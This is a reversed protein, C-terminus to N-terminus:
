SRIMQVADVLSDQITHMKLGSDSMNQSEGVKKGERHVRRVGDEAIQGGEPQVPRLVDVVVERRGLEVLKSNLPMFPAERLVAYQGRAGVRVCAPAGVVAKHNPLRGALIHHAPPGGVLWYARVQKIPEECAHTGVRLPTIDEDAVAVRSGIRTVPDFHTHDRLLRPM